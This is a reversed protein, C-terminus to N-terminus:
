GCLVRARLPFLAVLKSRCGPLCRLREEANEAIKAPGHPRSKSAFCDECNELPPVNVFLRQARQFPFCLILRPPRRARLPFLAVIKSSYWTLM